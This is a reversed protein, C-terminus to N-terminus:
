IRSGNEKEDWLEKPGRMLVDEDESEKPPGYKNFM